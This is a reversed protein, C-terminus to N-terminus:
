PLKRQCNHDRRTPPPINCSFTTARHSTSYCRSSPMLSWTSMSEARHMQSMRGSGYLSASFGPSSANGGVLLSPCNPVKQQSSGSLRADVPGAPGAPGRSQTIRPTSSTQTYGPAPEAAPERAPWCLRSHRASDDRGSMMCSAATTAATAGRFRLGPRLDIFLASLSGQRPGYGYCCAQSRM